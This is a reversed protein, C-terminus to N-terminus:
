SEVLRRGLDSEYRAFGDEESHLPDTHRQVEERATLRDVRLLRALEGETILGKKFAYVAMTVYHRPMGEAIVAEPTLNLMEQARRVKFGEEKLREWTGYPLRKLAELRKILAQVSVQYFSALEVFHALTIGSPLSRHLETVRRNLGTAPMLFCEAFGDALRERGSLRKKEFLVTIEPQFRATLFHGYEHALSWNRRDAPHDINIAVCAGLAENYAFVGAIKSPMKFYFIRIGVQNALRDRLDPVPGDGMGLRAREASAIDEAIQEWSAGATEYPPPYLRPAIMGTIRELEAFDEARRQLELGVPDLSDDYEPAARFQPVFSETVLKRSVFDSVSRRYIKALRVLENASVRREGKEIAVITTRAVEFADAVQQQTLGAAKRADQLRSGLIRPDLQELISEM